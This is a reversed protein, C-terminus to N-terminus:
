LWGENETLYEVDKPTLTYTIGNPDTVAKGVPIADGRHLRAGQQHDIVVVQLVGADIAVEDGDKPGNENYTMSGDEYIFLFM